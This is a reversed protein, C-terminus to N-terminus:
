KLKNELAEIKSQQSEVTKILRDNQKKLEIMYLTLEEIKELLKADTKGLDNGEKVMEAASPVGPLHKNEKVFQEVEGLSLLKYDKNFVYDAWQASGPVAVKVKDSLIGGVVALKYGRTDWTGMGVDAGQNINIASGGQNTGLALGYLGDRPNFDIYGQNTADTQMTIRTTSSTWDSGTTHRFMHIILRSGNSTSMGFRALEGGSGGTTGLPVTRNIALNTGSVTQADAQIALALWTCLLVTYSIKLKM